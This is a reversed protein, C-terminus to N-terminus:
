HGANHQRLRALEVRLRMNESKLRTLEDVYGVLRIGRSKGHLEIHGAAALERLNYHVVSTSSIGCAAMIERVTPPDAPRTKLYRLIAAQRDSM